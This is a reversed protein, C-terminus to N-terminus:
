SRENIRKEEDAIAAALQECGYCTCNPRHGKRQPIGLAKGAQQGVYVIPTREPDGIAEPNVVNM